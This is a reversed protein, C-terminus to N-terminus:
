RGRMKKTKNKEKKSMISGECECLFQASTLCHTLSSCAQVQRRVDKRVMCCTATHQQTNCHACPDWHTLDLIHSYDFNPKYTLDTFPVTKSVPHNELQQHHTLTATLHFWHMEGKLFQTHTRTHTHTHTHSPILSLLHFCIPTTIPAPRSETITFAAPSAGKRGKGEREKGKREKGKREKGKREKGKREKGEEGRERKV